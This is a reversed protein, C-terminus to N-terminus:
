GKCKLSNYATLNTKVQNELDLAHKRGNANPAGCSGIIWGTYRAASKLTEGQVDLQRNLIKVTAQVPLTIEVWLDVQHLRMIPNQVLDLTNVM